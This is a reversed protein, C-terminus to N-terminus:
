PAEPGGLEQAALRVHWVYATGGLGESYSDVLVRWRYTGAPPADVVAFGPPMDITVPADVEGYIQSAITVWEAGVGDQRQLYLQTGGYDLAGGQLMSISARGGEVATLLEVRVPRGTTTLEVELNPVPVPDTSMTTFPGSSQSMVLPGPQTAELATIAQALAAFDDNVEQAVIVQGAEFVHPVDIAWGAIPVLALAVSTALLHIKSTASPM